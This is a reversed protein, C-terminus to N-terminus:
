IQMIEASTEGILSYELKMKIELFETQSVIYQQMLPIQIHPLMATIFWEQHQIDSMQFSVKDMLTKFRQNFDWISKTLM